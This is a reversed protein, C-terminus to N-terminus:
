NTTFEDADIAYVELTIAPYGTAIANITTVVDRHQLGGIGAGIRPIAFGALDQHQAFEFADRLSTALWDLDAHAGPRDQSALNLIWTGDDALIALMDGAQLARSDCAVKYEPYIEPHRQRILKAVGAGMLGDINVGQGVAPLQTDFMNGHIHKVNAPM